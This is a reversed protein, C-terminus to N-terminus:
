LLAMLNLVILGLDVSCKKVTHSFAANVMCVFFTVRYLFTVNVYKKGM